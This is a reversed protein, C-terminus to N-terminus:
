GILGQLKQNVISAQAEHSVIGKKEKYKQLEKESTEVKNKLEGLRSTLWTVSNKYPMIRLDLNYEIYTQAICNAMSAAIGPDDAIFHVEMINSDPVFDVQMGGLIFGSV